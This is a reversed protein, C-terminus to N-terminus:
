REPMLGHHGWRAPEDDDEVTFDVVMPRQPALQRFLRDRDPHAALRVGFDHEGRNIGPPKAAREVPEHPHKGERQPVSRVPLKMQHAITM